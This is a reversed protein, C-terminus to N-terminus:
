KIEVRIGKTHGSFEPAYMSEISTIGNSFKGANNARITYELVYTGKRLEDFFFHTAADRTSEYYATGDRYKYESLVNVPEFGSARMDKLHIFDMDATSRVVLRVTVLDGLELKTDPTIRQLTTGNNGTINLYLEKEVQLPSTGHDKIKNLDEFYQWYAGGYGATANNNEVTVRSFGETIEEAKWVIKRFGTGAEKETESLKKDAIPKGGLKLVTQDETQLWDEGQMLLAYSAETTAKTTPWHNTRKNQLLWIKMEEIAETEGLEAFAEILLAQTEVPARYWFWGSVNEKWYMGYDESKVAKEKLSLGIKQAFETDGTRGLILMLVGKNYLDKELWDQKNAALAKEMLKQLEESAPFEELYYTRAYLYHLLYNSHYFNEKNFSEKESRLIERDLFAIANKTMESVELEVGLKKLHALGAVIHRTIFTNTRGGPFWPWGGSSQQMQALKRLNNQQEQRLKDTDFLQAMVQKQATESAADRVWPTEALILDKLDERKELDSVLSSDKEWAEFVERILPKSNVIEGAVANAYLRAFIQESCEHEFEMLYPLSQLAYWAPNSSYELTYKHHQLTPSDNEEMNKFVYSETEGAKVFFPLSEKVLMRNSLVPLFNEEGDSFDGAKALVRYTVAQVGEPIILEWALVTNGSESVSFTKLKETNGLLNDIPEMTLADYLELLATGTMAEPTLNSIKSKFVITDNERLFRPPNPVVSLEKQTRVTNVYSGTTWNNTHALLRLKWQTLAEPTTFSFELRGDKGLRLDPFFFATEDLDKRAEVNQLDELAKKTNIIVVGGAARSGYLATAETGKLINVSLINESTIEYDTVIKGDVVYLMTGETTSSAGRIRITNASTVQVGAVKGQLLRAGADEAEEQVEGYGTVVVEELNSSDATLSVYVEQNRTVLVEEPMFGLYSFVLIDGPSTDLAFMGDFDTTTGTSTGEIIVNVGPLPLGAEDTVKGRTNGTLSGSGQRGEKNRLYSRYLYSDPNSMIFGFLHLRDFKRERPRYHWPSPFRNYLGTTGSMNDLYYSPFSLYPQYFGPNTNWKETKFQDLSMDYMSALVEADPIQLEANKIQFSWTEEVGPSIKSRFTETTIELFHETKPLKVRFTENFASNNKVGTIQVQLEKSGSKKLPIELLKSGKVQVYESYIKDYQDYVGVHLNLYEYNTQLLLRIKKEKELNQNIMSADFRQNDPLSPDAPDNVDFLKKATTTNEGSEAEIVAVYKGTKWDPTIPIEPEYSGDTDWRAEFFLEALPWNEPAPVDEYPEEPFLKIFEEKPITQIEPAPWLRDRLLRDPGRLKYIKLSGTVPVPTDNLNTALIQPRLTDRRSINEPLDLKLLLNKKGIKLITSGERTEGSIDRVTANISYEYILEPKHADTARMEAPFSLTFHGKEDTLLTDTKVISFEGGDYYWWRYVMERQKVTYIVRANSVPSGMFTKAIGNVNISDGFSYSKKISDFSVEFSPRKYEEVNFYLEEYHYADKNWVKEWFSTESENDEETYISFSGTIGNKPLLFEGHFSGYKNTKLRFTAVQEDNPDEVYVEVFENPVTKTKGNQHSLLVGKFHVKQGPRYIARDLYLLTKVAFQEEENESYGYYGEWYRSILTDRGKAAIIYDINGYNRPKNVLVEGKLDTVKERVPNGKYMWTLQVHNEPLGTTRNLVRYLYKDDFSTQSLSLHTARLFGFSYGKKGFSNEGSIHIMYTGRELPPLLAETSHPNYDGSHPLSLTKSFFPTHEETFVKIEDQKQYWQTQDPFTVPVKFIKLHVSDISKYSLLMRGATNPLLTEPIRVDLQVSKIASLLSFARQEMETNPYKDVVKQALEVAKRNFDPHILKGDEGTEGARQYYSHAFTYQLLPAALSNEYKNSLRNLAEMYKNWNESGRFQSNVYELRQLQAYVLATPDQETSHLKELQQYIKLVYVESTHQAAQPFKLQQFEETAGYLDSTTFAYEDEPRVAPFNSSNQFYDLAESALLDYLTPKYKRNLPEQILIEDLDGVPTDILKEPNHLSREFSSMISDQLTAEAWTAIDAPDPNDIKKRKRIKWRHQDYYQQLFRGKYSQLVNEFPVPLQAITQNIDKLIFQDSDEHNVQYFKYQFIKAKILQEYDKQKRATKFIDSVIESASDVRGQLELSDVQQWRSSYQSFGVASCLLAVALFVNKM